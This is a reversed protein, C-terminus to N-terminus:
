QTNIRDALQRVTPFAYVDSLDIMVQMENRIRTVMEMVRLSNAGLAFFFNDDLGLGPRKFLNECLKLLVREFATAEACQSAGTESFDDLNRLLQGDIKGNLNVPLRSMVSFVDPAMYYPLHKRAFESLADIDIATKAEVYAALYRSGARDEKCLVAVSEVAPFDRLVSEIEGLEIRFGRLKVQNDLRGHFELIGDSRWCGRDGTRYLRGRYEPIPSEIFRDATLEINNIYGRALGAGGLLIEGTVGIPAPRLAEDLVFVKVNYIPKGIPVAAVEGETLDCATSCVSNETPGYENVLRVEPLNRYHAAVLEISASEGAVTVSRLGTEGKIETVLVKYYTPTVIMRTVGSSEMLQRIYQPDLRKDERPIVLRAGAALFGFIDPVSSDFAFSPMQLNADREDLEYYEIQWLITNVIATHEVAVGKPRGTSGSTYIVYALDTDTSYDPNKESPAVLDLEIDLVLLDGDFTAASAITNSDVLLVRIEADEIIHTVVSLPHGPNIPVYAAGAKLIGLLGVIMKESRGVLIGVRDGTRVNLFDRLYVALGNAKENLDRYTLREREYVVAVANPTKAAQEEFLSHLRRLGAHVRTTTNFRYIVTSRERESLIDLDRLTGDSGLLYALVTRFHGAFREIFDKPYSRADFWLQLPARGGSMRVSLLLSPSFDFVPLADTTGVAIASRFLQATSSEAELGLLRTVERLTCPGQSISSDVEREIEHFLFGPTWDSSCRCRYFYATGSATQNAVLVEERSSYRCLLLSLTALGPVLRQIPSAWEKEMRGRLVDPIDIEVSEIGQGSGRLRTAFLGSQHTFPLLKNAWYDNGPASLRPSTM